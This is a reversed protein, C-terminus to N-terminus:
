SEDDGALAADVAARGHVRRGDALEWYGGGVHRPYQVEPEPIVPLPVPPPPPAHPHQKSVTACAPCKLAWHASGPGHWSFAGCKPCFHTM